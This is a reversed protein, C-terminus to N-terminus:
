ELKGGKCFPALENYIKSRDLDQITVGAESCEEVTGYYWHAKGLPKGEALRTLANGVQGVKRNKVLKVVGGLGDTYGRSVQAYINSSPVEFGTKKDIRPKYSNAPKCDYTVVMDEMKIELDVITVLLSSDFKAHNKELIMPELHKKYIIKGLKTANSKKIPFGVIKVYRNEGSGTIYCYNNKKYRKEKSDYHFMVYDMHCEYGIIHTDAPFPMHKKIEKMCENATEIVGEKTRKSDLMDKFFWSDTFGGRAEYGRALFYKEVYEHIQQGIWCCDYGANISHVQEFIPSRVCGYLANLFIKIAYQLATLQKREAEPMDLETKLRAKIDFRTKLKKIVDLGLAHQENIFYYGRCEFLDDGHWLVGDEVATKIEDETWDEVNAENFLGFEAFTHPYKSAEDLYDLDWEEEKPPSIARGGMTDKEDTPKGYTPTACKIKCAAKYTLSAISAKIWSWNLVDEEYLWNTFPFKWFNVLKDFLQKTVEVDARLYKKIDDEEEANWQEKFFISYDIDGKQTELDFAKAMAKLSNGDSKVGMYNMRMKHGLFKNTGLIKGVDIQNFFKDPILGNNYCVPYDFEESNFGILNSHDAFFNKILQENGKAKIEYYKDYKFSYFGIWKVQAREVYLDFDKKINIPRGQEDHSSTEIDFCLSEKIMNRIEKEYKM